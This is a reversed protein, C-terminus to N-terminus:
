CGLIQKRLQNLATAASRRRVMERCGPFNYQNVVTKYGFSTSIFVLGVPKDATAGSPGAIGTVAIGAQAGYKSCLSEVMEKACEASVAGHKELTEAKIDLLKQKWEDSYLVLAGSLIESAGPIETLSAAIKGGTCSEAVAMKMNKEKLLISLEEQVSSCGPRLALEKLAARVEASKSSIEASDKGSIVVRVTEPSACYAVSVGPAGALLPAVLGEVNSEAAGAAFICESYTKEKLQEKVFPLVSDAFVQAAENPPGPLFFIHKDGGEIPLHIGPASGQKNELVIGGDPVQAQKLISEPMPETKRTKWFEVLKEKVSSNEMLDIELYDAVADRTLDDSTPGLGGVTIVVESEELLSDLTVKIESICDPVCAERELPCGIAALERGIMSLNTNTTSGNLLENGISLVAIKM